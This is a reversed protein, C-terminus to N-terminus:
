FSQTTVLNENLSNEIKTVDEDSKWIVYDAFLRINCSTIMTEIGAVFISFLTPSVVSSHPIGQYSRYSNSIGSQYKVRFSRNNLFNSIWLLARGRIKFENHCKVLLKNKWVKDFAKTLDLFVSITRNTPTM